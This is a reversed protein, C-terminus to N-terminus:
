AITWRLPLSSIGHVSGRHESIPGDDYLEYDPVLRCWEGLFINLEQRALHSGLCRHPGAGFAYHPVADRDIVVDRARDIFQTDRNAAALSFLVMEGAKLDQGGFNM